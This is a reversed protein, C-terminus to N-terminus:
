VGTYCYLRSSLTFDLETIHSFSPLSKRTVVSFTAGNEDRDNFIEMRPGIAIVISALSLFVVAFTNVFSVM